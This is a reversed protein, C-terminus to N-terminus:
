TSPSAEVTVAKRISSQRLRRLKKAKRRARLGRLKAAEVDISDGFPLVTVGKVCAQDLQAEWLTDQLYSAAKALTEKIAKASIGLGGVVAAFSTVGTAADETIVFAMAIVGSVVGLLLLLGFWYQKLFNATLGRLRRLLATGAQVYDDSSLTDTALKEGTLLSRWRSGQQVLARAVIARDEVREGHDAAPSRRLITHLLSRQPEAQNRGDMNQLVWNQWHSVSGLVTTAAHAALLSKLDRLWGEVDDMRGPRLNGLATPDRSPRLTLDGLSQGLRYAKALHGDMETLASLLKLHFERVNAPTRHEETLVGVDPLASVVPAGAIPLPSTNNLKRLSGKMQGVRLELEESPSLDLVDPQTATSEPGAGGEETGPGDAQQRTIGCAVDFIHAM